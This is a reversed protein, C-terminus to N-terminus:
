LSATTSYVAPTTSLTKSFSAAQRCRLKLSDPNIFLIWSPPPHTLQDFLECQCKQIWFKSYWWMRCPRRWSVVTALPAAMVVTPIKRPAATMMKKLATNIRLYHMTTKQLLPTSLLSITWTNGLINRMCNLCSSMVSLLRWSAPGVKSWFGSSM